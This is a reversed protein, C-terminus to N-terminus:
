QQQTEQYANQTTKAAENAKEVADRAMDVDNRLSDTYRTMTNEVPKPKESSSQHPNSCGTLFVALALLQITKM